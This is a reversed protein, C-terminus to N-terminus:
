LFVYDSLKVLGSLNSTDFINEDPDRERIQPHLRQGRTEQMERGAARGESVFAMRRASLGPDLSEGRLQLGEESAEANLAHPASAELGFHGPRM